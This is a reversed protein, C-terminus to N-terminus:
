NETDTTRTFDSKTPSVGGDPSNSGPSEGLIGGPIIFHLISAMFAYLLVGILTQTIREKAAQVQSSQDGATVYQFGAYILSVVALAAVLGTLIRIALTLLFLIGNGGNETAKECLTTACKIDSNAINGKDTSKRGDTTSEASNTETTKTTETAMVRSSGLTLVQLLSTLIIALSVLVLKSTQKNKLNKM